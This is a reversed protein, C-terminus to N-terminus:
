SSEEETCVFRCLAVRSNKTSRPPKRRHYCRTNALNYTVAYCAYAIAIDIIGM